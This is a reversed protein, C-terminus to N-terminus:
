EACVEESNHNCCNNGAHNRKHNAKNESRLHFGCSKRGFRMIVLFFQIKGIMIVSEAVSIDSSDIIRRLIIVVVAAATSSYISSTERM